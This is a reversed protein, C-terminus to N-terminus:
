YLVDDNDSEINDQALSETFTRVLEYRSNDNKRNRKSFGLRSLVKFSNKPSREESPIDNDDDHKVEKHRFLDGLRHLSLISSPNRDDDTEDDDLLLSDSQVSQRRQIDFYSLSRLDDHNSEGFMKEDDDLECYESRLKRDKSGDDHGNVVSRKVQQLPNQSEMQEHGEVHRYGDHNGVPLRKIKSSIDLNDVEYMWDIRSVFISYLIMHVWTGLCIGTCLGVIGWSVNKSFSLYAGVPMGVLYYSFVVIPGGIRQKGSGKLVGTLASQIGDPIVYMSVLPLITVFLKIVEAEDTFMKVWLHGVFMFLVALITSFFGALLPSIFAAVRAKLHNRAGLANGLRTSAATQIGSPIM